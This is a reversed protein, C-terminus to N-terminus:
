SRRATSACRSGCRRASARVVEVVEDRLHPLLGREEERVGLRDGREAALGGAAADRRGRDREEARREERPAAQREDRRVLEPDALPLRVDQEHARALLLAADDAEELRPERALRARAQRHAEHADVRAARRRVEDREVARGRDERVVREADELVDVHGTGHTCTLQDPRSAELPCPSGVVSTALAIARGFGAPPSRSKEAADAAEDAGSRPSRRRPPPTGRRSAGAWGRGRAGGGSAAVGAGRSLSEAGDGGLEARLEAERREREHARRLPSPPGRSGRGRPAGARRRVRRRRRLERRGRRDCRGSRRRRHRRGAERRGSSERRPARGTRSRALRRSRAAHRVAGGVRGVAAPPAAGVVEVGLDDGCSSRVVAGEVGFATLRSKGIRRSRTCPRGSTQSSLAAVVCFGCATM